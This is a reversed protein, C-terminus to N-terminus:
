RPIGTVRAVAEDNGMDEAIVGAHKLVDVVNEVIRRDLGKTASSFKVDKMWERADEETYICGLEGTGLLEVVKDENAEFDKIGLDLFEFLKALGSDEVPSPFTSTSAVILWSPWPTFIEGIKKLPPYPKLESQHFYPKTTFHEWMFFEATPKRLQNPEESNHSTVGERLAGFPGLSVTSLSDAPWGGRQSLVFSMIHSGSSRLVYGMLESNKIVSYFMFEFIKYSGSDVSCIYRHTFNIRLFQIDLLKYVFRGLRSVGVRTNRLDNVNDISKRNRSTVIAWRLPTEVWEGVIKYGGSVSNEYLQSKGTLGAIWGETLGIGVDIEKERLSTIM